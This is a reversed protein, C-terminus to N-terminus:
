KVYHFVKNLGFRLIILIVILISVSNYIYMNISTLFFFSSTTYYILVARFFSDKFYSLGIYLCACVTGIYLPAILVGLLGFNSWAEAIYIGNMNWGGNAIMEEFYVEMMKVSSPDVLPLDFIKTFIGGLSSFGIFNENSYFDLSYFVMAMQAFFVREFVLDKIQFFDNSVFMYYVSLIFFLFILSFILNLRAIKRKTICFSIYLALVYFIITAKESNTILFSISLFILLYKLFLEYRGSSKNRIILQISCIQSIIMGFSIIYTNAYNSLYRTIEIRKLAAGLHDGQLSLLLPSPMIKVQYYIASFLAFLGFFTIVIIEGRPDIMKKFVISEWTLVRNKFINKALFLICLFPYFMGIGSWLIFLVGEKVVDEKHLINSLFYSNDAEGIVIFFAGLFGFLIFFLYWINFFNLDTIKGFFHRKFFLLSLLLLSGFTFILIFTSNDM